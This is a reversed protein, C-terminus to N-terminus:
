QFIKLSEDRVALEAITSKMPYNSKDQMGPYVGGNCTSHGWAHIGMVTNTGTAVYPSGCDGSKTPFDVSCIDSALIKGSSTQTKPYTVYMTIREDNVCKKWKLTNINASMKSLTKAFEGAPNHSLLYGQSCSGAITCKALDITQIVYNKKDANFYRLYKKGDLKKEHQIFYIKGSVLTANAYTEVPKKYDDFLPFVGKHNSSYDDGQRMGNMMEPIKGDKKVHKNKCDKVQCNSGKDCVAAEAAKQKWKKENKFVIPSRHLFPCELVTCKTKVSSNRCPLKFKTLFSRVQADPVNKEHNFDCSKPCDVTYIHKYPCPTEKKEFTEWKGKFEGIGSNFPRLYMDDSSQSSHDDDVPVDNDSQIHNRKKLERLTDSDADSVADSADDYEMGPSENEQRRRHEAATDEKRMLYFWIIMCIILVAAAYGTIALPTIAEHWESYEHYDIEGETDPDHPIRLQDALCKYRSPDENNARVFLATEFVSASRPLDEALFSSSRMCEVHAQILHSNKCWCCRTVVNPTMKIYNIVKRAKAYSEADTKVHVARRFWAGFSQSVSGFPVGLKYGGSQDYKIEHIAILSVVGSMNGVTPRVIFKRTWKTHNEEKEGTNEFLLLLAAKRRITTVQDERVMYRDPDSLMNDLLGDFKTEQFDGNYLCMIASEVQVFHDKPNWLGMSNVFDDKFDAPVFDKFASHKHEVVTTTTTTTTTATSAVAAATVTTTTSASSVPAVVATIEDVAQDLEKPDIKDDMESKGNFLKKFTLAGKLMASAGTYWSRVQSFVKAFSSFEGVVVLFLGLIM